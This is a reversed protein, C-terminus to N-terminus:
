KKMATTHEDLNAKGEYRTCTGLQVAQVLYLCVHVQIQYRTGAPILYTRDAHYRICTNIFVEETKENM